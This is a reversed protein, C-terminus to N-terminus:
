VFFHISKSLADGKKNSLNNWYQPFSSQRKCTIVLYNSYLYINYKLQNNNIKQSYEPIGSQSPNCFSLFFLRIMIVLSM